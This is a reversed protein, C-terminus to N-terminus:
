ITLIARWVFFPNKSKLYYKEFVKLNLETLTQFFNKLNDAEM